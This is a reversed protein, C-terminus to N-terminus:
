EQYVHRGCTDELPGLLGQGGFCKQLNCRAESSVTLTWQLGPPCWHGSLLFHQFVTMWMRFGLSRPGLQTTTDKLPVWSNSRQGNLDRESTCSVDVQTRFLQLLPQPHWAQRKDIVGTCTLPHHGADQGELIGVIGELNRGDAASVCVSSGVMRGYQQRGARQTVTQPCTVGVM